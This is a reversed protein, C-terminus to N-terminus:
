APRKSRLAPKPARTTMGNLAELETAWMGPLRDLYFRLARRALVSLTPKKGAKLHMSQVLARLANADGTTFSLVLTTRDFAKIQKTLVKGSTTVPPCRTPRAAALPDTPNNPNTMPLQHLPGTPWYM